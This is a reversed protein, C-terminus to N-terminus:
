VLLEYAWDDMLRTEGNFNIGFLYIEKNTNQYEQYYQKDKIQEIAAKATQNLKFEFIYARNEKVIVADIRGKHTHVEANITLGMLKVILFFLSHYHKEQKLYLDYPIYELLQNMGQLFAEFDDKLFAELMDVIKIDCMESQKDCFQNLLTQTFALNM